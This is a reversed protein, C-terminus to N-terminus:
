QRVNKRKRQSTQERKREKKLAAPWFGLIPIESSKIGINGGCEDTETEDDVRERADVRPFSTM